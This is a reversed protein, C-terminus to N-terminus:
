EANVVTTVDTTSQQIPVGTTGSVPDPHTHSNFLAIFTDKVLKKLASGANQLNITPAKVNVTGQTTVNIVHNPAIEIIAGGDNSRVQLSSAAPSPSLLKKQSRPGLIAFGDSLDHMRRDVQPQTGGYAWWSDIDRSAFVVLVEDGEAVPFTIAYGGASPFIVPIDVLIPMTLLEKTGDRKLRYLQTAPQVECTQTAADYSTIIAPLATWMQSQWEALAQIIVQHLSNLRESRKM